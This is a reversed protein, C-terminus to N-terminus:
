KGKLSELYALLSALEAPSFANLLGEPMMSNERKGREKIDGKEITVTQGVINRVDVSDGGERVVFGDFDGQKKTKFWQTEFGQAIKANPKLISEILAARDYIKAAAALNPGKPPEADSVTHCAICGARLFMEQGQKVDGGKAVAKAADEFKMSALTATPQESLGLTQYAFLAAEAVANNPDKLRAKVQEAFGKAKTRAIAGLIAAAGEPTRWGKDLAELCKEKDKGAKVLNSSGLNVLVTAAFARRAADKGMLDKQWDGAWKANKADRTYEEYATALAPQGIEQGAFPAFAAVVSPYILGNNSGKALIRMARARLEPTEGTNAAIEVLAKQGEAPLSLDARYLGEVATLRAPTDNGCAALLQEVLGPFNVKTLYMRQILWRADEGKAENSERKLTAEIKESEAWKAPKYVPGSTDPRTGWWEKPDLYPSDQLDLRCLANLIGKRLDGKAAPLRAILGDVVEPQYMGYLARLAGSKVADDSSDLAGLCVQAAGLQTLARTTLHAIVPDPDAVLPLLNSATEVKGIRRLATVAAARIRPDADTLSSTLFHDFAADARKGANGLANIVNSRLVSVKTLQLLASSSSAGPIQSLTYVAAVRSGLTLDPSSALKTLYDIDERNVGRRLLERQASLRRTGSPSTMVFALNANPAQLDRELYENKPADKKVLRLIYGVNPGEYKFTAGEWSSIYLRELGDVDMDTPRVLKLFEEEGQKPGILEWGAGKQQLNHHFVGGKGWEVTFLGKPLNPEDLWLSGCPSGGGLDALTALHDEPFNVFLIPYGMHAGPPVHSLRVNWGGGDNTNDRTFIDMTPSVAVDLINRQGQSVIELGTGDPRIRVIGGGRNRIVTGDKGKAEVYGYDGVAVYIFGDIALRCGNTTHDAGRFSLDFGLGTILDEERDAKGDGDDDYYATLNPPHMVYCAGKGPKSDGDWIVGRPSDMVAFDKFEDAVGDGDTDRVRVVKGRNKDRDLSGNGDVAVFLTGDLAASVQVPYGLQPPSAFVTAEFGAPLTVSKLIQEPTRPTPDAAFVTSTLLVAASLRHLLM